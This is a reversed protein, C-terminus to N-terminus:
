EHIVVEYQRFPRRQGQSRVACAEFLLYTTNATVLNRCGASEVGPSQLRSFGLAM